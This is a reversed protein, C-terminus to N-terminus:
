SEESSPSIAKVSKPTSFRISRMLIWLSSGAIRALRDRQIRMTPVQTSRRISVGTVSLTAIILGLASVLTKYPLGFLNAMHLEILWTTLTNGARQGTPISVSELAGNRADFLITTAGAKDGIDRSSRVSYEYLGRERMLYFTIPRNISFGHQRAQLEM